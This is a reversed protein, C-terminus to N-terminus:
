TGGSAAEMAREIARQLGEPDDTGIRVVERELALDVTDMGSVRYLWGAGIYRIGWGNYWGCRGRAVSRIAAIPVARRLLGPGFAVQVDQGTVRVTLAHHLFLMVLLLGAVALSTGAREQGTIAAILLVIAAGGVGIRIATGAQTHDYLM